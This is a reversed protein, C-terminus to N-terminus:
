IFEIGEFKHDGIYMEDLIMDGNVTFAMIYSAIKGHDEESKLAVILEDRFDPVFKFSSFGHTSHYPGVSRFMIDSFDESVSFLINTARQEDDAETYINHSARRPLFFWRQHVASWAASEHIMYGTNLIM